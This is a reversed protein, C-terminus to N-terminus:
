GAGQTQSRRRGEGRGGTRGQSTPDERHAAAQRCGLGADGRRDQRPRLAQGRRRGGGRSHWAVQRSRGGIGGRTGGYLRLEDGQAEVRQSQDQHWGAGRARAEGPRGERVSALGTQVSREAGALAAQPFDSITRFDPADLGVISMFDVRERCAKAIRRSSYIGCCYAYLLLATMMTPDFPPQGRESGYTGNIKALDVDERVVSLVFRALHDPGVFDQVTPPLFLPEAIKWPRFTKSM